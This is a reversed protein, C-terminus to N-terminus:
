DPGKGSGKQEFARREKVKVDSWRSLEHEPNIDQLGGKISKKRMQMRGKRLTDPAGVKESYWRM